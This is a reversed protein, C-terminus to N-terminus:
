SSAIEREMEGLRDFLMLFGIEGTAVALAM